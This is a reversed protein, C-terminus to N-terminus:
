SFCLSSSTEASSARVRIRSKSSYWRGSNPLLHVCSASHHGQDDRWRRPRWVTSRLIGPTRTVGFPYAAHFNAEVLQQLYCHSTRYHAAFLQNRSDVILETSPHHEHQTGNRSGGQQAKCPCQKDGHQNPLGDRGSATRIRGSLAYRRGGSRNVGGHQHITFTKFADEDKGGDNGSQDASLLHIPLGDCCSCAHTQAGCQHSPKDEDANEIQDRIGSRFGVDLCRGAKKGDHDEENHHIPEEM